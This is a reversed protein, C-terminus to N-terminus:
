AAGCGCAASTAWNHPDWALLASAIAIRRASVAHGKRAPRPSTPWSGTSAPSKRTDREPVDIGIEEYLATVLNLVDMHDLDPPVRGARLAL